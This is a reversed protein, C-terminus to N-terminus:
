TKKAQKHKSHTKVRKSLLVYDPIFIEKGGKLKRGSPSHDDKVFGLTQYFEMANTNSTFCTLMVKEVTSINEAIKELCQM